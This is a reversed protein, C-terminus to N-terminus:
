TSETGKIKIDQPRKISVSFQAKKFPPLIFIKLLDLSLGIRGAKQKWFNIRMSEIAAEEDADPFRDTSNDPPNLKLPINSFSPISSPSDLIFTCYTM